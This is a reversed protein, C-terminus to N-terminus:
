RSGRLKAPDIANGYYLGRAGLKIAQENSMWDPHSNSKKIETQECYATGPLDPNDAKFQKLAVHCDIPRQFKDVIDSVPQGAITLYVVIMWPM